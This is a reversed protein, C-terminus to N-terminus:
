YENAKSKLSDIAQIFDDMKIKIQKLMDQSIVKDNIQEHKLSRRLTLTAAKQCVTLLFDGNYEDTIDALKGLDVDDALPMKKTLIKLIEYRGERDPFRVEIEEQFRRRLSPEIEGTSSAIGVVVIQGSNELADIESLLWSLIQGIPDNQIEQRAPTVVRLDPILIISPTNEKAKHFIGRLSTENFDDLIREINLVFLRAKAASAAARALINKGTGPPGYILVTKPPKLDLWKFLEPHRLPFEIIEKVKSIEEKLGGIDDYSVSIRDTPISVVSKLGRYRELWLNLANTAEQGINGYLNGHLSVIGKQFEKWVKSDVGRLTVTTEPM